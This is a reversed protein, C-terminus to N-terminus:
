KSAPVEKELLFKLSAAAMELTAKEIKKGQAACETFYSLENFYGGLDSINGNGKTAASLDKKEIEIEKAEGDKYLMFKGGANEVTAKEFVVRFTASFPYSTPLGWTGEVTVVNEKYKMITNIYSNEEEIINSVSFMEEPEGFVSLVFDIDHIHLDQAAGGSMSVDHLWNKWAWNPSPSIRRFNANVVKGHEGSQIIKQLEVYEDWFRIVQGIQVQCGTEKQKKLLAESEEVTLTAPKEVMVYKVKDMALLAFEAHLFTPLCIDIVDVDAKEILDRGDGYVTANTGKAITEAKDTCVDAVAVLEVNKLNKYCNSHMIGMMGCGILGVKVM